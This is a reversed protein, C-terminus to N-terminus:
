VHEDVYRLRQTCLSAGACYACAKVEGPREEVRGKGKAALHEMAERRTNFRKTCRGTAEPNAYYAFTPESRWLEEDTCEPLDPEPSDLHITIEKLKGRVFSETEHIPILKFRLSVWQSQPYEESARASAAAWDLVVCEIVVSDDQIVEPNLWRYMSGQLTWKKDNLKQQIVFAKTTKVDHLQGVVVIDFQGTVKWGDVEKVTRKEVYVALMGDPLPVNPDPNVVYRYAPLGLADLAKRLSPGLWSEEIATHIAQGIRSAVLSTINPAALRVDVRRGLIYQRTSKLLDTVSITRDDGGGSYNDTALWVGLSESM